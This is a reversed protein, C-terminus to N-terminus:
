QLSRHLNEIIIFVIVIRDPKRKHGIQTFGNKFVFQVPFPRYPRIQASKFHLVVLLTLFGTEAEVEPCDPLYVSQASPRHDTIRLRRLGALHLDSATGELILSVSFVAFAGWLILGYRCSKHNRTAYYVAIGNILIFFYDLSLLGAHAHHSRMVNLWIGSCAYAPLPHHVLVSGLIGIYDAKGHSHTAKM